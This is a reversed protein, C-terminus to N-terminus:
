AGLQEALYNYLSEITGGSKEKLTNFKSHRIGLFTMAQFIEISMQIKSMTSKKHTGYNIICYEFPKSLYGFM